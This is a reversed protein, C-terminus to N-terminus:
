VLKSRMKTNNCWFAMKERPTFAEPPKAARLPPTFTRGTLFLARRWEGRADPGTIYADGVLLMIAQAIEDGTGVRGVPIRAPVGAEILPKGMETDILGPAVANVTVGEPALRLAYGRAL